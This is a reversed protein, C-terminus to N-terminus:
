FNKPSITTKFVVEGNKDKYEYELIVKQERLADMTSNTKYNETLKPQLKNEFEASDFNTKALDPLSFFYVLKGSVATVKDLSTQEDVMLPLNKNMDTAIRNLTFDLRSKNRGAERMSSILAYGLIGGVLGALIQLFLNRKKM